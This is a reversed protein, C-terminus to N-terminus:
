HHLECSALDNIMGLYQGAVRWRRNLMSLIEKIEALKESHCPQSTEKVYWAETWLILKGWGTLAVFHRSHCKRNAACQYLSEIIMPSLAATGQREIIAKVRRALRLVRESYEKLGAISDQQMLLHDESMDDNVSETCSYTDYLTLLASYCIAISTCSPPAMDPDSEDHDSPIVDALAKLTRSIQLAEQFRYDWPITKDDIHRLAKGMLHASRVFFFLTATLSLELGWRLFIM